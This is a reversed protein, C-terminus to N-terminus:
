IKSGAKLWRFYKCLNSTDIVEDRLELAYTLESNERNKKIKVFAENIKIDLTNLHKLDKFAKTLSIFSSYPINQNVRLTRLLKFKSIFKFDLEIDHYEDLLFCNLSCISPLQDYFQQNLSPNILDLTRLNKLKSLFWLFQSQNLVKIASVSQINPFKAFFNKPVMGFKFSRILNTYDLSNFFTIECDLGDYYSLLFSQVDQNSIGRFQDYIKTTLEIGNLFIQIDNIILKDLVNVKLDQLQKMEFLNLNIFEIKKLQKLKSAIDEIKRSNEVKECIIHEVNMFKELSETLHEVDLKIISEPNSLEIFSMLGYYRLIKLRSAEIVLRFYCYDGLFLTTLMPLNLSNTENPLSYNIELHHLNKFISYVSLCPKYNSSSVKLQKLYILNQSKFNNFFIKENVMENLYVPRNSHYWILRNPLYYISLNAFEINSAIQNWYRCVRMCIVLDELSLNEFIKGIVEPPLLGIHAKRGGNNRKLTSLKSILRQKFM